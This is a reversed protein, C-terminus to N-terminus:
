IDRGGGSGLPHTSVPRADPFADRFGATDQANAEIWAKAQGVRDVSEFCYVVENLMVENTLEM